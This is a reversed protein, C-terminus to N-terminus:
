LWFNLCSLVRARLTVLESDYRTKFCQQFSPNTTREVKFIYNAGIKM